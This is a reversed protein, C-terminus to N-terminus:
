ILDKLEKRFQEFGQYTITQLGMKDARETNAPSDDVFLVDEPRFEIKRCIDHFLDPDRKNRHLHYSNFVDKFYGFFDYKENIEDLWNTQDSLIFMALGQEKLEKILDLMESHMKFRKLLENRLDNDSGKIGMNQRLAEWFDSESATGTVYGTSYVIETATEFFEDPHLRNKRGIEKLGERFGEEAIVGGFDFLIARVM